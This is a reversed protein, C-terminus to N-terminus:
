FNGGEYYKAKEPKGGPWPKKSPKKEPQAVPTPTTKKEVEVM